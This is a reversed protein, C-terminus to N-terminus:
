YVKMKKVIYKEETKTGNKLTVVSKVFGKKRDETIEYSEAPLMYEASYKLENKAGEYADQMKAFNKMFYPNIGMNSERYIMYIYTM